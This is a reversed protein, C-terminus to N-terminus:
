GKFRMELVNKERDRRYAISDALERVLHLGVHGVQRESLPTSLDPPPATLPNFDCGDDTSSITVEADEVELRLSIVHRAQDLYGYKIINTLVEELALKVKFVVASSLPQSQLFSDAERIAEALDDFDNELSLNLVTTM